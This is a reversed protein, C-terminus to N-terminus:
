DEKFSWCSKTFGEEVHNLIVKRRTECYRYLDNVKRKMEFVDDDLDLEQELYASLKETALELDRQNDEFIDTQNNKNVYFAFVYTNLLAQRCKRLIEVAKRLFDAEIGSINNAHLYDIKEQVRDVLKKELKMSQIHNAYRSYYFLYRELAIRSNTMKNEKGKNQESEVYASCSHTQYGNPGWATLCIWCFHNGCSASTCTMHNCGGNKEITVGCKPCDKTNAEIWNATESDDECKQIWKKIMVCTLPQHSSRGCCFCFSFGCRCTVGNRVAGVWQIRVAFTCDPSPCWRMLRNCEVFSNTILRQHAQRVKTDDILKPIIADDVIKTCKYAACTIKHCAEGGTIKEKLYSSWCDTCFQHGCGLDYIDSERAPLFCIGCEDNDAVSEGNGFKGTLQGVGLSSVTNEEINKFIQNNKENERLFYAELLKESDWKFDHLLIRMMGQPLNLVGNAQHITDVMSNYIQETNLVDIHGEEEDKVNDDQSPMGEDYDEIEDYDEDLSFDMTDEDEM